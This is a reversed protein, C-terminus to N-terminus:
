ILAFLSLIFPHIYHILLYGGITWLMFHELDTYGQLSGLHGRYDWLRKGFVRLSFAGGAFEFAAMAAGYLLAEFVLPFPTFHPALLLLLVVGFGYIPLFPVHFASGEHWKLSRLSRYASDVFWGLTGYLLFIFFYYLFIM